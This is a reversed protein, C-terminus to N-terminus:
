FAGSPASDLVAPPPAVRPRTKKARVTAEDYRAMLRRYFVDRSFHRNAREVAAASMCRLRDGDNWLETWKSALDGANGAEFLLGTRGDEITEQLGGIRSALVPIGYSQAEAAVIGFCEFWTSSVVSLRAGRYIAPLEDRGRKGLWQVNSPSTAGLEKMAPGDGVVKVPLGTRKAAEILVPLGKEPSVRGVFLLYEGAAADATPEDALPSFNPLVRVQDPDYGDRLLIDANFQSCPLLLDIKHFVGRANNVINRIAYATSWVRNQRCGHLAAFVERGTAGICKTCNNGHRIHQGAPCTLKYDEVSMVVPVGLSNCADIVSPSVLPLINHLHVMDIKEDRILQEIRRRSKQSYMATGLALLKQGASDIKASDLDCSVVHHGRDRLLDGVAEYFVDFGGREAHYNHVNLVRVPEGTAGTLTSQESCDWNM